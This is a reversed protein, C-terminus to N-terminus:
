KRPRRHRAAGPCTAFHALHLVLGDQDGVPVVRSRIDGRRSTTLAVNGGPSPVANVLMPRKGDTMTWVVLADCSRCHPGAKAVLEAPVDALPGLGPLPEDRM